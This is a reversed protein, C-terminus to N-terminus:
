GDDVEGKKAALKALDKVSNWTEGAPLDSSPDDKGDKFGEFPGAAITEQADALRELAACIRALLYHTAKRDVKSSGSYAQLCIDEAVDHEDSM